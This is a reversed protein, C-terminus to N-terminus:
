NGDLTTPDIDFNARKGQSRYKKSQEMEAAIADSVTYLEDEFAEETTSTIKKWKKKRQEKLFTKKQTKSLVELKERVKDSLANKVQVSKKGLPWLDGRDVKRADHYVQKGLSKPVQWNEVNGSPACVNLKVNNKVKSPTDLIRPWTNIDTENRLDYNNYDRDKDIKKISTVDNKSRQVILYSFSGSETNRGGPRGSGELKKLTGKSLGDLGFGDEATKDWATALRRGKKLEMTFKPREVVKNFSCFNLRHKHSPIKYYKPDGLQLPCKRHHPCPAIVSIHYNVSESSLGSNQADELSIVEFDENDEVEFKLEQETPEGFKENLENELELGEQLEELEYQELLQKEYELDEDSIMQDEKKLKQPKISSGKIYPRPIKGVENEYAEPRIMIQRARAITEFGLANGREILVLHGEPSLLRLLLHINTDIDKPFNFERTLLAQNVMILDYKKTVPLSDRLRTRIQINNTKIPGVYDDTANPDEGEEEEEVVENKEVKSEQAHVEESVDEDPVEVESFNENLQRSLIIKARKKMQHNKRGVVYAEKEEPVWEDGMIENLAVIGTAPGYGVDLIRQPNFKDVGVRKQLELLVQHAHSYNQLFLAAIHADCDLATDPAKQIQEKLLSQYITAARERLKDPLATSLINNGIVKAIEYPLRAVGKEVRGELTWDHLRAEEANRGKIFSGDENRFTSMAEIYGANQAGDRTPPVSKKIHHSHQDIAEEDRVMRNARVLQGFSESHRRRDFPLPSGIDPGNAVRDEKIFEFDQLDMKDMRHM